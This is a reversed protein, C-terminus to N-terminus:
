KLLKISGNLRHIIFSTFAVLATHAAMHATHRSVNHIVDLRFMDLCGSHGAVEAVLVHSRPLSVPHMNM